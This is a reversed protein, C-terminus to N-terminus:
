NLVFYAVIVTYGSAPAKNLYITFSGTAPVVNKVFFAGQQQVTALIMSGTTAGSMNVTVHNSGSPLFALGSRSFRAKGIVNLAPGTASRAQVGTGSASDGFVGVGNTTAEGFVGSGVGGTQGWVGIGTSGTNHGYVGTGKVTRGEVGYGTSRDETIGLVGGTLGAGGLGYTGCATLGINSTLFTCDPWGVTTNYLTTTKTESNSQGAIIAQGQTAAAWPTGAFAVLSVTLAILAAAAAGIIRAKM